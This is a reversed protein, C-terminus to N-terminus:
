VYYETVIIIAPAGAGGTGMSGSDAAGGGGGGGGYNNGAAGNGGAGTGAKGGGGLFASGGSGGSTSSTSTNQATAGDSGGINVDGDVGVGGNGGTIASGNAGFTASCHSGFSSNNGVAGITVTETTGLSAATIIKKSYGGGGGGGGASGTSGNDVGDAGNGGAAQVEVVVYKLGDPKTWTDTTTFTQVTPVSIGKITAPTVVLSAGTAGTATGAAVEAATAIEVIGKNTETANVNGGADVYAKVARQTAVKSDSNAALTTDTDLVSTELKDTNLNNFNDNIVARSDTILDTSNINTISSM